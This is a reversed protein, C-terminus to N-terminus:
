GEECLILKCVIVFMHSCYCCPLWNNKQCITEFLQFLCGRFNSVFIQRPWLSHPSIACTGLVYQLTLWMNLAHVLVFSLCAGVCIDHCFLVNTSYWHMLMHPIRNEKVFIHFNYNWFYCIAYECWLILKPVSVHYSVAQLLVSILM